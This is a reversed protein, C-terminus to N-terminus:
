KTTLFDVNRSTPGRPYLGNKGAKPGRAPWPGTCHLSFVKVIVATAAEYFQCKANLM